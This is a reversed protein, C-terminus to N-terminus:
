APRETEAPPANGSNHNMAVRDLTEALAREVRRSIYIALAATPLEVFVALLVAEMQPAGSRSTTIDFWADVILLTATTIAPLEIRRHGKLALYATRGMALVLLVDFGVWATRYHNAVTRTPLSLGLYVIWPILAFTLALFLPGAWRPVVGSAGGAILQPHAPSDAARAVTGAREM